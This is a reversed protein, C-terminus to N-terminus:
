GEALTVHGEQGDPEPLDLDGLQDADRLRGMWVDTPLGLTRAARVLASSEQYELTGDVLSAEVCRDIIALREELTLESALKVEAERLAEYFAANPSGDGHLLGAALLTAREPCQALLAEEEGTRVGDAEIIARVVHYTFVEVNRDDGQATMIGEADGHHEEIRTM